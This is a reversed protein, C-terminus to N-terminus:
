GRERLLDRAVEDEAASCCVFYTSMIGLRIAAKIVTFLVMAEDASMLKDGALSMIMASSMDALSELVDRASSPIQPFVGAEEETHKRIMAACANVDVNSLTLQM